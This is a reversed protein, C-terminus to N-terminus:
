YGPNQMEEKQGSTLPKGSSYVADLFSQPIPRLKHYDKIYSSAEPNYAKVREVLTETRSLAEWRHFEGCLERSRENLLFCLMKDYTSSYGLESIVREDEEPLNGISTIQLNTSEETEDINVSEYYSNEMMFSNNNADWDLPSSSWAAAGDTYYDRKEGAKYSARERVPNIYAFAEDFSGLGMKALRIKAEAGILYTEASRALIVDRLGRNDNIATRSADYHKSLSPFRPEDLLSKGDGAHAVYVSPIVKGTEEYIVEELYKTKEFRTDGPENIIFMVGLDGNVFQDSGNNLRHKTRFSKWFRSDKELDYKEYTFYTPALRTYPRMGTLDRVMYPLDDYKATFIVHSFNRGEAGIDATFQASLIIEPLFENEGDPETYNWLDGYNSALPHNTIVEDVLAVTQELDSQKSSENWGDNIESARSLYAKALYHAVADKSVRTPSGENPLLDYAMNFDSIIQAYVEEEPARTFENEVSTSVELKLPVAGFQSVLRLYSYARFFYGEGLARKKVADNTSEIESAYKILQNASNIGIYLYDWQENAGVTNSNLSPVISQLGSNYNNWVGNSDDGGILFEDTGYNTSVYELESSFPFALVNYYSGIALSLIGEETKYYELDPQTELTEDLFDKECSLLSIICIFSLSLKINKKFIKM